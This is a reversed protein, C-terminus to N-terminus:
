SSGRRTVIRSAADDGDISGGDFNLRWSVCASQSDLENVLFQADEVIEINGGVDKKASLGGLKSPKSDDIAGAHVAFGVLEQAAESEVNGAASRQALEAQCLLLQDLDDSGDRSTRANEDHILWGRTQGETFRPFSSSIM